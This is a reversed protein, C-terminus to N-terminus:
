NIWIEDKDINEILLYAVTIPALISYPSVKELRRVDSIKIAGESVSKSITRAIKEYIEQNKTLVDRNEQREIRLRMYISTLHEDRYKELNEFRRKEEAELFQAFKEQFERFEALEKKEQEPSKKSSCCQGGGQLGPNYAIRLAGSDIQLFRQLIVHPYSSLRPFHRLSTCQLSSTWKIHKSLDNVRCSIQTDGPFLEVEFRQSIILSITSM